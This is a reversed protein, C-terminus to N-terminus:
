RIQPSAKKATNGEAQRPFYRPLNYVSESQSALRGCSTLLAMRRQTFTRTLIMRGWLCGAVWKSFIYATRHLRISFVDHPGSTERIFPVLRLGKDTSTM